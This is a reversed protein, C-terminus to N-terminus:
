PRARTLKAAAEQGMKRAARAMRNGEYAILDCFGAFMPARERGHLWSWLALAKARRQKRHPLALFHDIRRLGPAIYDAPPSSWTMLVGNRTIPPIIPPRPRLRAIERVIYSTTAKM